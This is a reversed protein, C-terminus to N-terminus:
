PGVLRKLGKAGLREVLRAAQEGDAKEAGLM